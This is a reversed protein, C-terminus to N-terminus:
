EDQIDKKSRGGAIYSFISALAGMILGYALDPKGYQFLLVAGTIGLVLAVLMVKTILKYESLLGFHALKIKSNALEIRKMEIREQSDIGYKQSREQSEIASKQNDLFPKAVKEVSKEVTEMIARLESKQSPIPMVEPTIVSLNKKGLHDEPM